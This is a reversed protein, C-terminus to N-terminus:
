FLDDWGTASEEIDNDVFDDSLGDVNSFQDKEEPYAPVTNQDVGDSDIHDDPDEGNPAYGDEELVALIYEAAERLNKRIDKPISPVNKVEPEKAEYFYRMDAGEECCDFDESTIAKNFIMDLDTDEGDSANTFDNAAHAAADLGESDPQDLKDVGYEDQEKVSEPEDGFDANKKSSPTVEGFEKSNDNAHDFDEHLSKMYDAFSIMIDIIM